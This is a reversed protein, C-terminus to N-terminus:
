THDVNDVYVATKGAVICKSDGEVAHSGGRVVSKYKSNGREDMIRTVGGVRSPISGHSIEVFSHRGSRHPKCYAVPRRGYSHRLEFESITNQIWTKGIKIYFTVVFVM